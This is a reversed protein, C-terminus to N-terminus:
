LLNLVSFGIVASTLIVLLWTIVSLRLDISDLFIQDRTLPTSTYAWTTLLTKADDSLPKPEDYITKLKKGYKAKAESHITM